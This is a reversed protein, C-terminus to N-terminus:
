MFSSLFVSFLSLVYLFLYLFSLFFFLFFVYHLYTPVTFLFFTVLVPLISSLFISAFSYILLYIFLLLFYFLRFFHLFRLCAFLLFSIYIIFNFLVIYCLHIFSYIFSYICISNFHFYVKLSEGDYVKTPNDSIDHSSQSWIFTKFIQCSSFLLTKLLIFFFFFIKSFVVIFIWYKFSFYLYFEKWVCVYTFVRM